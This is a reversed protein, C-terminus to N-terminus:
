NIDIFLVVNQDLYDIFKIMSHFSTFAANSTSVILATTLYSPDTIRHNRMRDLSVRNVLLHIYHNEQYQPAM